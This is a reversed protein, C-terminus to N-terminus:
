HTKCISALIRLSRRPFSQWNSRWYRTLLCYCHEGIRSAYYLSFIVCFAHIRILLTLLPSNLYLSALLFVCVFTCTLTRKDMERKIVGVWGENCDAFQGTKSDCENFRVETIGFSLILWKWVINYQRLKYTIIVLTIVLFKSLFM